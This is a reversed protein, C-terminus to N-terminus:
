YMNILVHKMTLVLLHLIKCFPFRSKRSINWKNTCTEINISTFAFDELFSFSKKALYGNILVHKLILVLLHLIKCFPFRSKRSINWKNTCTQNNISTFAFDQLFLVVKERSIGNILAHKLILVLLHLIKCFPFRSKRSINWQNTCTENNISTFAFDQFFLFRSKRSINWKYIYSINSINTFAFDQRFSFSTKPLINWKLTNSTFKSNQLINWIGYNLQTNRVPIIADLRCTHQKSSIASYPHKRYVFLM